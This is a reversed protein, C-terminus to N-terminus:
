QTGGRKFLPQDTVSRTTITNPVTLNVTATNSFITPDFSLNITYAVSAQDSVSFSTLVVHSFPKSAVANSDSTYTTFKLTDVFTNVDDITKANGVLVLTNQTFDASASSITVNSPTVQGLYGFLRSTAPKGDHLKTLAALQNQVTLIKNLNPTSQIQATKSKIDKTLDSINKKQAVDVTLVLLLLVGVAAASALFSVSIVLHKTRQAKIYEQKVDPLLNFQIM